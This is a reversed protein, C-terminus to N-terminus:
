PALEAKLEAGLADLDCRGLLDRLRSATTEDLAGKIVDIADVTALRRSMDSTPAPKALPAEDKNEVVTYDAEIMPPITKPPTPARGCEDEIETALWSLGARHFAVAGIQEGLVLILERRAAEAEGRKRQREEQEAIRMREAAEKQAKRARRAAPTRAADKAAEEAERRAKEVENKHKWIANKITEESVRADDDVLRERAQAPFSPASLTYLANSPLHSVRSANAEFADALSMLRRATRVDWGFEAKLWPLFESHKLAAKARRLAQGAAVSAEVSRSQADRITSADDKLSKAVDAPIATYDFAAPTPALANM